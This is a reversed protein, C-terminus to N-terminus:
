RQQFLNLNSSLTAMAEATEEDLNEERELTRALTEIERFPYGTEGALNILALHRFSDQPFGVLIKKVEGM